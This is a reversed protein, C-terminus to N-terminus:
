TSRGQKEREGSAPLPDPHPPRDVVLAAVITQLVGDMNSFVDSNWFRLV